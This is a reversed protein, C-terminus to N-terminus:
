FPWRLSQFRIRLSVELLPFWQDSPGYELWLVHVTVSLPRAAYRGGAPAPVRLIIFAFPLWMASLVCLYFYIPKVLVIESDHYLSLRPLLRPVRKMYEDYSEHFVERLKEEEAVIVLPYYVLSLFLILVLVLVDKAAPCGWIAGILSFFCLSNRCVSYPPVLLSFFATVTKM